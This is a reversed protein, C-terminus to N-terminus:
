TLIICEKKQLVLLGVFKENYDELGFRIIELVEERGYVYPM